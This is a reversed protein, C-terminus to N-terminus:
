IRCVESGSQGMDRRPLNKDTQDIERQKGNIARIDNLSYGGCLSPVWYVSGKYLIPNYM